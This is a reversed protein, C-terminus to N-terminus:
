PKWWFTVTPSCAQVVIYDTVFANCRDLPSTWVIKPFILKMTTNSLLLKVWGGEGGWRVLLTLLNINCAYPTIAHFTVTMLIRVFLTTQISISGCNSTSDMSCSCTAKIYLEKYKYVFWIQLCYCKYADYM